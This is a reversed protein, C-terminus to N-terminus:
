AKEISSGSLGLHHLTCGSNTQLWAHRKKTLKGAWTLEETLIGPILGMHWARSRREKTLGKVDAQTLHHLRPEHNAGDHRMATLTTM